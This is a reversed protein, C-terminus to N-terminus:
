ARKVHSLPQYNAFMLFSLHGAFKKCDTKTKISNANSLLMCDLATFSLCISQKAQVFSLGRSKYYPVHVTLSDMLSTGSVQTSSYLMVKLMEM